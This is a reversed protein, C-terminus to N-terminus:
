DNKVEASSPCSHDGAREPRKVKPSIAWAVWHIPPWTPGLFQGSGTPFLFMKGRELIFGPSELGYGMAWPGYGMAWLGYGMARVVSSDRSM